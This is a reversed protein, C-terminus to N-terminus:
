KLAEVGFALPSFLFSAIKKPLSWVRRIPM